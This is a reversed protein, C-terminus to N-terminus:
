LSSSRRAEVRAVVEVFPCMRHSGDAAVAVGVAEPAAAGVRAAAVVVAPVVAVPVATDEAAAEM